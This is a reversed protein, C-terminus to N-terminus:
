CGGFVVSRERVLGPSMAFDLQVVRCNAEYFEELLRGFYLESHFVQAVKLYLGICPKVLSAFVEFLGLQVQEL